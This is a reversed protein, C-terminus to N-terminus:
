NPWLMITGPDNWEFWWGNKEAWKSIAVHVGFNYKDGGAWYNFLDCGDKYEERNEGSLWIGKPQGNFDETTRVFKIGWRSELQKMMANRTAM